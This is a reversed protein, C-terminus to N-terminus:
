RGDEGYLSRCLAFPAFGIRGVVDILAAEPRVELRPM